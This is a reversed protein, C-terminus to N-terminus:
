ASSRARRRTRGSAASRAPARVSRRCRAQRPLRRHRAAALGLRAREQARRPDLRQVRADRDPRRGRRRGRVPVRRRRALGRARRTRTSRRCIASGTGSPTNSATRSTRGGCAAAAAPQVFGCAPQGRHRPAEHRRRRSSSSSPVLKVDNGVAFGGTPLPANWDLGFATRDVVTELELGLRTAATSAQEGPGSVTGAIKVPKTDGKITLEGDIDLKDGDVRIATSNFSLQPHARRRLLGALAPSRQPEARLRRDVRRRRHRPPGDRRAHRSFTDFGGRFKAVVMHKVSFGVTSHVPDVQWTGTPLATRTESITSM